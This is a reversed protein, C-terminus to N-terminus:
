SLQLRNDELGEFKPESAKKQADSNTTAAEEPRPEANSSSHVCKRNAAKRLANRPETPLRMEHAQSATNASNRKM